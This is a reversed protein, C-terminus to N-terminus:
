NVDDWSTDHQPTNQIDSGYLNTVIAMYADHGYPTCVGSEPTCDFM